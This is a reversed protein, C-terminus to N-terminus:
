QFLGAILSGAGDAVSVLGERVDVALGGSAMAVFLGALFVCLIAGKAKLGKAGLFMVFAVVCFAVTLFIVTTM